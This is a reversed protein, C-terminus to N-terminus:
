VETSKIISLYAPLNVGMALTNTSFLIPLSASRFYEEILKKDSVCLGAHHFAVGSSITKRLKVDEIKSSLVMIKQRQEDSLNLRLKDIITTAGMEASRRSNCFILAPRNKSYKEIVSPLKYTLNMDFRFPTSNHYPYGLVHRELKVPRLDESM